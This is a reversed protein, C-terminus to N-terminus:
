IKSHRYINITGDILKGQVAFFLSLSNCVAVLSWGKKGGNQRAGFWLKKKGLCVSVIPPQTSRRLIPSFSSSNPNLKLKLKPPTFWCCCGGEKFWICWGWCCCGTGMFWLLVRKPSKNWNGPVLNKNNRLSKKRLNKNRSEGFRKTPIKEGFKQQYLIKEGVIKRLKHRWDGRKKKCSIFFLYFMQKELKQFSSGKNTLRIDLEHLRGLESGPEVRQM